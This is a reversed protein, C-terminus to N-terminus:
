SEQRCLMCYMSQCPSHWTKYLFLAKGFLILGSQTENRSQVHQGSMLQGQQVLDTKVHALRYTSYHNEPNLLWLSSIAMGTSYGFFFGDNWSEMAVYTVLCATFQDFM